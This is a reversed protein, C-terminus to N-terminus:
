FEDEFIEYLQIINPHNLSSLISGELLMKDDKEEEIEIKSKKISKM